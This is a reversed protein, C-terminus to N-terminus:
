AQGLGHQPESAATEGGSVWRSVLRATTEAGSLDLDIPEPTLEGASDVARALREPTLEDEPLMVAMGREALRRARFSQETQGGHAFPVLVGPVGAAFLEVATNYGAQSVSLRAAPLLARFDDRHREVVVGATAEARLRAIWSEEAAHGALLRWPRDALRTLPRAALAAEILARGVAGGGASVLVEGGAVGAAPAPVARDVVFGTYVIREAIEAAPPFTEEFRILRPDGHVLVTDFHRRALAAAEAIREPKRGTQLVDRVSALIRPRTPQAAAAELLAMLEHRFARRGFPFTEIILADPRAATFAALLREQRTARLAEDFPAGDAGALERFGPDLARVPPLQVVESDGADLGPLPPGGTVLTVRLGEARLARALLAARRLHGTGLLHQVYILVHPAM